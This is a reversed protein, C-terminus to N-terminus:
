WWDRGGGGGARKPFCTAMESMQLRLPRRTLVWSLEIGTTETNGSGGAKLREIRRNSERACRRPTQELRLSIMGDVLLEGNERSPM